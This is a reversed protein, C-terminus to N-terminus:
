KKSTTFARATVASHLLPVSRSRSRPRKSTSTACAFSAIAARQRQGFILSTARCSRGLEMAHSSRSRSHNKAVSQVFISNEVDSGRLARGRDSCPSGREERLREQRLSLRRCLTGGARERVRRVIERRVEHVQLRQMVGSRVKLFCEVFARKRPKVSMVLTVL